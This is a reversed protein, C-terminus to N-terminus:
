RASGRRSRRQLLLLLVLSRQGRVLSLHSSLDGTQRRPQPLPGCGIRVQEDREDVVNYSRPLEM